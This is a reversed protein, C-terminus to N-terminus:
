KTTMTFVGNWDEAPPNTLYFECRDAYIKSTLDGTQTVSDTFINKAEEFNKNKYNELGQYYLSLSLKKLKAIKDDAMGILEYTTTPKTKGKVVITDLERAIVFDEVLKYTTDSIMINTNYQKNAGELRSALNVDDGMVTYDFRKEGGMNGVVVEGSNIGIRIDIVPIGRKDWDLQMNDVQKRMEIASKCAELAHNKISIPAGWFAMVADGIYKDLTGKNELVIETMASLYENMLTVLEDATMKESLTSFGVIDSFLISLEKKEGGLKLKEPDNILENVLERSVYYGFMGRIIANQQREKLFNYTTSSFYGFIIALFPNIYVILFQKNIFLYKSLQLYTLATMALIVVSIIEVLYTKKIGAKKIISSLYFSLITFLIIQIIELAKSQRTIHYNDLVNQIMTAHLKVGYMLNQGSGKDSISVPLQDKDEPMTSGILVIKDRFMGSHLLGYEPNDWTDISEDFDLEDITNFDKDDLVDILKVHKFDVDKQISYYNILVSSPTYKPINNKGFVFYDEKNTARHLNEKKYYKNLVAFSFTPLSKNVVSSFVYPRYARYVGDFDSPVNVIGISSDASYFINGYNENGKKLIGIGSRQEGSEVREIIQERSIDIQGAVVVNKYKKIASYLLSDNLKDYQDPSAMVLDIGIAKVGAENLNEIVNAFISRPWPWRRHDEPLQQYTDETIELIIVDSSDSINLEGRDVFLNDITKLELSNLSNISFFIDQTVIILVLIVTVCIILGTYNNKTKNVSM